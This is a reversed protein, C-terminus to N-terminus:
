IIYQITGPKPIFKDKKHVTIVRFIDGQKQNLMITGVVNLMGKTILVYANDKIEGNVFDQIILPLGDKVLSIIERESIERTLSREDGHQTMDLKWSTLDISITENLDSVIRSIIENAIKKINNM